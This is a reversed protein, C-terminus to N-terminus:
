GRWMRRLTNDRDLLHHKLAAAIHLALLATLSWILWEHIGAALDHHWLLEGTGPDFKYLKVGRLKKNIAIKRPVNWGFMYPQMEYIRTHLEHWIAPTGTSVSVCPMVIINVM